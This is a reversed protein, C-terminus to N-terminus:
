YQSDIRVVLRILNMMCTTHDLIAPLDFPLVSLVSVCYDNCKHQYLGVTYDPKDVAHFIVAERDCHIM